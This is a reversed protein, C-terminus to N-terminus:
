PEKEDTDGHARPHAQDYIKLLHDLTLETYKQTTSLSKHGLMEQVSRLDAGGELLHTAMAHRLAHPGLKRGGSLGQGRAEVLRQVSRPTLRGGRHNVFLANQVTGKGSLLKPRFSIYAKLAQAAKKGVPVLRDKGGKGEKVQVLDLDLRLNELDLGVLEGVRLGSSYLLELMARDRAAAAEQKPTAKDPRAAAGTEMIHFAEDVSLRKPLPKDQKPPRVLRSPDQVLGKERPAFFEFFARLSMIKRSMTSRKLTKMGFATFAELDAAEVQDWSDVPRRQRLFDLFQRLDRTYAAVTNPLAGRAQALYDAFVQLVEEM